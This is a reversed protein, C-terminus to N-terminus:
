FMENQFGKKNACCIACRVPYCAQKIECLVVSFACLIVSNKGQSALAHWQIVKKLKVSFWLSHAKFSLKSASPINLFIRSFINLLM